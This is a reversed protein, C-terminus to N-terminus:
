QGAGGAPEGAGTFVGDLLDHALSDFGVAEARSAQPFEDSYLTGAAVVTALVLSVIGILGNQYRM